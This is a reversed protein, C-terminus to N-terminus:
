FRGPTKRPADAGRDPAFFTANIQLLRAMMKQWVAPQKAALNVHEGPDTDIAYLCGAAGCREKESHKGQTQGSGTKTFQDRTPRTYFPM